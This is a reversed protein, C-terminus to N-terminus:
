QQRAGQFMWRVGFRDTLAGYTGFPMERLNDLLNADAGVALKDFVDGLEGYAAGSIYLCVTNGQIPTRTPHLWDSASISVGGGKLTANIVKRHQTPPMSDKMPSDGVRTVSL